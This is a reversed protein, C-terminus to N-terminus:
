KIIGTDLNANSAKVKQQIHKKGSSLNWSLALYLMNGFAYNRIEKCSFAINSLYDERSGTGSNRFLNKMGCKVSLNRYVNRRM